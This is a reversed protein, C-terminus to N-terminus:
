WAVPMSSMASRAPTEFGTYVLVGLSPRGRRLEQGLTVGDIDPLRLDVLVVDASRADLLARAQAADHALGVVQLDPEDGVRSALSEAVMRHDEVIVVSVRELIVEGGGSRALTPEM